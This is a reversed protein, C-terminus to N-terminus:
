IYIHNKAETLIKNYLKYWYNKHEESGFRKRFIRGKIYVDTLSYPDDEWGTSVIYYEESRKILIVKHHVKVVNLLYGLVEGNSLVDINFTGLPM